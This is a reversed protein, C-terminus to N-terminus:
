QASVEFTMTNKDDALVLNPGVFSFAAGKNLLSSFLNELGMLNNPSSCHMLTSTMQPVTIFSRSVTYQGGMSNCFKAGLRGNEFSLIYDADQSVVVGNFSVLRFSKGELARAPDQQVPQPSPNDSAQSNDVESDVTEIPVEVESRSSSNKFLYFGGILLIVILVVATTKDMKKM